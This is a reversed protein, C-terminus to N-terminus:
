FQSSFEEGDYYFHETDGEVWWVAQELFDPMKPRRGKSFWAALAYLYVDHTCVLFLETEESRSRRTRGSLDCTDRLTQVCEELPRFGLIQKGAALDDVVPRWGRAWFAEAAEEEQGPMHTGNMWASSSEVELCNQGKLATHVAAMTAHCRPVPSTLLGVCQMQGESVLIDSLKAGFAEAEQLGRQTLAADHQRKWFGEDPQDDKQMDEDSVEKEGHRFIVCVRRVKPNSALAKICDETRELRQRPGVASFTIPFQFYAMALGITAIPWAAACRERAAM